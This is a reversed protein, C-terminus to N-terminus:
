GYYAAGRIHDHQPPLHLIAPPLPPTDELGNKLISEVQQYRYAGITDAYACAKELRAEGYRKALRIVGLCTRYAQQPVARAALLHELFTVTAAGIKKAQQQLLAPTLTQHAQHHAPMHAQLTSYGYAKPHRAHTAIRQSKCFVELSKQTVRLEVVQQIFAYPVSYYHREFEVHYDIHVRAKKWIAFQYPEPPLPKLAAKELQEFREYRSGPLKQFPQHNLAVMLPKIAANLQALSTFTMDRLKALVFRETYGVASEVTSKDRPHAVRAPVIAIGYHEGFTQYHPNIDPDYRHAKKVGALLNDPILCDPVGGYFQFMRVHANLWDEVSQSATAEIYTYSSAGLAGVFIQAEQREGTLPEFWPVTQGAYDVECREGAKHCQHMVPDLHKNYQRYEICFRTYGLGEPHQDRYERWLLLLTVGKRRLERHLYPWDPRPRNVKHTVPQYLKKYLAEETMEEPLPWHVQAAKALRLYDSVTSSSIHLSQAIERHSLGLAHKLRLVEKIQRVSLRRTPM